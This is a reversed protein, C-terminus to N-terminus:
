LLSGGNVNINESNIYSAEDSLLFLVANSVDLTSGLRKLPNTKEKDEIEEKTWGKLSLPTPVFGPCVSNVRINYKSLEIASAKTFNIIAAASACYSSAEGCPKIGLKSSINVIASSKSKKLLPIAYKTCLFKGVLNVNLVNKFDEVDFDEIYSDINTGANNVLYDLKGYITNIEEFMAKVECDSSIDAKIIHFKDKYSKFENYLKQAEYDNHTYNIIVTAGNKLLELAITKGIGSTSGTVLVVKNEFNM